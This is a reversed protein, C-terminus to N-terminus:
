HAPSLAGLLNDVAVRTARSVSEATFAGVHPTAIVRDHALIPSPAPPETEYADVGYGALRGDQLAALVAADDVLGGRATNVLVAGKKMRALAAADMLPKQGPSHPCHLTVIDSSVLLEELPVYRFNSSPAYRADPYADFGLVLMDMGLAFKTVLRGIKGTGIVGLTRGDLETGQRREWRGAKMRADGFSVSRLLSLMLAITLEAVGRANAGDARLVAIGRRQCAALDISDVGTGNRSIAKLCDARALVADTIKEVGALWGACGPVLGLLETEDPAKGPTCFVLQHGAEKLLELAPDGGKTLSRPTVLIKAM